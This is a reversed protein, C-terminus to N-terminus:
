PKRRKAAETAKIAREFDDDLTGSNTTSERVTEKTAVGQSAELKKEREAKIEAATKSAPKQEQTAGKQEVVPQKSDISTAPVAERFADLLLVAHDPVDSDGLAKLEPSQGELWTGFAPTKITQLWGPHVAEVSAAAERLVKEKREKALETELKETRQQSEERVAQIAAALTPYQEQTEKLLAERADRQANSENKPARTLEDVRRTLAAVRGADSRARHKFDNAQKELSEVAAKAEPTLNVRWDAGKKEEVKTKPEEVLPKEPSGEKDTAEESVTNQSLDLDPDGNEDQEQKDEATDDEAEEESAADPKIGAAENFLKEIDDDQSAVADQTADKNM